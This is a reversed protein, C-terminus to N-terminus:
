GTTEVHLASNWQDGQEQSTVQNRGNRVLVALVLPRAERHAATVSCCRIATTAAIHILHVPPQPLKPTAQRPPRDTSFVPALFSVHLSAARFSLSRRPASVRQRRLASRAEHSIFHPQAAACVHRYLTWVYILM